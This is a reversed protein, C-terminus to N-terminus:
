KILKFHNKRIEHHVADCAFFAANHAIRKIRGTKVDDNYLNIDCGPMCTLLDDVMNEYVEDWIKPYKKKLETAKM